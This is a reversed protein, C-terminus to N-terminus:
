EFCNTLLITSPPKGTAFYPESSIITRHLEGKTFSSRRTRLKVLHHQLKPEQGDPAVKYETKKMNGTRSHNLKPNVTQGSSLELKSSEKLAVHGLGDGEM